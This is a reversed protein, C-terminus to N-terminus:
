SCPLHRPGQESQREDVVLRMQRGIDVNEFADNVVSNRHFYVERGDMVAILFVEQPGCPRAGVSAKICM